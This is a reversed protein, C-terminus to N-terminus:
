APRGCRTAGARPRASWRPARPPRGCPRARSSGRGPTRPRAPAARRGRGTGGTPRRSGSAPRRAAARSAPRAPGPGRRRPGARLREAALAHQRDRGGRDPRDVVGAGLEVAGLDGARAAAHAAQPDLQPVAAPVRVVSPSAGSESRRAPRPGSRVGAVGGVLGEVGVPCSSLGRGARPPPREPQPRRSVGLGRRWAGRCRRSRPRVASGRGARCPRRSWRGGRSPRSRAATM